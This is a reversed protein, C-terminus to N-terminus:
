FFIGLYYKLCHRWRKRGTLSELNSNGHIKFNSDDPIHGEPYFISAAPDEAYRQYINVASLVTVDCFDAVEDKVSSGRKRGLIMWATLLERLYVMVLLTWVAKSWM